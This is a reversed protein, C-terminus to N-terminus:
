SYQGDLPGDKTNRTQMDSRSRVAKSNSADVALAASAREQLLNSPQMAHRVVLEQAGANGSGRGRPVKGIEFFM